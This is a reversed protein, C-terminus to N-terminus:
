HLRHTTKTQHIMTSEGFKGFKGAIRYTSNCIAISYVCVIEEGVLCYVYITAFSDFIILTALMCCYLIKYSLGRDCFKVVLKMEDATTVSYGYTITHCLHM